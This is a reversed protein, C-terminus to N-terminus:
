KSVIINFRYAKDWDYKEPIVNLEGGGVVIMKISKSAVYRTRKVELRQM